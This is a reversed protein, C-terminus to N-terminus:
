GHAVIEEGNYRQLIKGAQSAREDGTRVWFLLRDGAVADIYTETMSAPIGFEVLSDDVTGTRPAEVTKALITAIEGAAYVQGLRPVDIPQEVGLLVELGKAEQGIQDTAKVDIADLDKDIHTKAVKTSVIVNLEDQDFGSELLEDVAEKCDQYREFLSFVSKM